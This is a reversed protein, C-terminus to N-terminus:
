TLSRKRQFVPKVSAVSARSTAAGLLGAAAVTIAAFHFTYDEYAQALLTALGVAAVTVVAGSRCARGLALFCWGVLAASLAGGTVGLEASQQLLLSDAWRLESPDSLAVQSTRQFREPGVGFGAHDATLQEADHWLLARNYSFTRAVARDIRDPHAPKSSYALGLWITLGLALTTAVAAVVVAVRPFPRLVAVVTVVSVIVGGITAARSGDLGATVTAVVAFLVAPGRVWWRRSNAATMGAAIAALLALAGDANGYGLPGALGWKTLADDGTVVAVELGIAAAPLALPFRPVIIRALIYTGTMALLLLTLNRASADSHSSQAACINAWGGLLVVLALGLGDAWSPALRSRRPRQLDPM